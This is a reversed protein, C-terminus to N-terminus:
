WVGKQSHGDESRLSSKLWDPGLSRYEVKRKARKAAEIGQEMGKIIGLDTYMATTADLRKLLALGAAIGRQRELPSNDDLIGSQTYFLHSAYPIEDRLLSDRVCARAYRTNRVTEEQTPASYQSEIGVFRGNDGSGRGKQLIWHIM